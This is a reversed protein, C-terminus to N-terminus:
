KVCAVCQCGYPKIHMDFYEKGYDYTLEEGAEICRLTRFFVRGAIIEAECNPKCSHNVYRAINSRVSGDIMRWRSTEFLYKNVLEDVGKGRVVTGVYEIVYLFRKVSTMAFLGLGTRSRKTKLTVEALIPIPM